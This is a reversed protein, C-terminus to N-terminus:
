QTVECCDFIDSLLAFYKLVIIVRCDPMTEMIEDCHYPCILNEMGQMKRERCKGNGANEKGQM